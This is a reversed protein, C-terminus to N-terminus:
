CYVYETQLLTEYEAEFFRKVPASSWLDKDYLFYNIEQWRTIHQGAPTKIVNEFKATNEVVDSFELNIVNDATVPDFPILYRKAGERLKDIEALGSLNDAQILPKYHHYYTRLWRYLKSKTTSTTINIVQGFQTTLVSGPWCHTGIWTGTPLEINKASETISDFEAQSATTFVSDTDGIKGISHSISLIGGNSGVDSWTNNLIDCLLGGCTYHPFAVLNYM